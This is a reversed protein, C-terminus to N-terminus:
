HGFGWYGIVLALATIILPMMFGFLRTGVQAAAGSKGASRCLDFDQGFHKTV